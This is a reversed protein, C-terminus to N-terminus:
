SQLKLQFDIKIAEGATRHAVLRVIVLLQPDAKYAEPKKTYAMLDSVILESRHADNSLLYLFNFTDIYLNEFYYRLKNIKDNFSEAKIIAM